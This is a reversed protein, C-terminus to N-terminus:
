HQHRRLLLDTRLPGLFGYIATRTDNGLCIHLSLRKDPESVGQLGACGDIPESGLLPGGLPANTNPDANTVADANTNPNTDANSHTDSNANTNTTAQPANSNPDPNRQREFRTRCDGVPM